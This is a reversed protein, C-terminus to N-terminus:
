EGIVKEARGMWKQVTGAQKEAKGSIELDADNTLKGIKEEITGKVEHLTGRAEDETSPKMM